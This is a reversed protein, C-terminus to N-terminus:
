QRPESKVLGSARLLHQKKQPEYEDGLRYGPVKTYPHPQGKSKDNRSKYQSSKPNRPCNAWDHELGCDFCPRLVPQGRPVINNPYTAAGSPSSGQNNRSPSPPSTKRQDQGMAYVGAAAAAVPPPSRGTRSHACSNGRGRRNKKNRHSPDHTNDDTGSGYGERNRKKEDKRVPQLPSQMWEPVHTEGNIGHHKIYSSAHALGLTSTVTKSGLKSLDGQMKAKTRYMERSAAVGSPNRSNYLAAIKMTWQRWTLDNFNNTVTLKNYERYIDDELGQLFTNRKEDQLFTNTSETGTYTRTWCHEFRSLYASYTEDPHKLM